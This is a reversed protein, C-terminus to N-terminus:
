RRSRSSGTGRSARRRVDAVGSNTTQDASSDPASRSNAFRSLLPLQGIVLKVLEMFSREALRQDQRLQFAGVLPILLVGAVVVLVMTYLPLAQAFFGLVCFIIVFVFLYFLGNAWASRLEEQVRVPNKMVSEGSRDIKVTEINGFFAVGPHDRKSEPDGERVDRVDDILATVRVMEYSKRCQIDRQGDAAFRRLIAFDYFEPHNDSLCVSCNCPILKRFKLDKYARHIKELEYDVLTMLDKKQQGVVRITIERTYYDESVECLTNDKDLVVGTKWVWNSQAIWRHMAVIVQTVIGKPMFDYSYRVVLNNTSEWHYHPRNASLRQPAIYTDALDPVPYCINFNLMLRLLEDRMERYEPETWIVSLDNKSYEGFHEIVKKNDLVSYVAETGWRPKLILIRKLIADQGFHLCVGLDHLYEILTTKDHPTVVGNKECIGAYEDFGITNRPDQELTRRVEVWNKPLPTGIQPLQAIRNCVESALDEFGRNTALNVIKSSLLHPFRIRLQNDDIERHRDQKENKVIIVPSTGGLLEIIHLWYYFDTDEKRDDVVL